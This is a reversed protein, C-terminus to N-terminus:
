ENLVDRTIKLTLERGPQAKFNPIPIQPPAEFVPQQGSGRAPMVPLTLKSAHTRDLYVRNVAPDPLPWLIPWHSSAVSVRIRHGKKFVWSMASLEINLRYIRGPELPEPHEHSNRHSANLVGYTILNSEGLANVETLKVVFATNEATSAACLQVQPFGLIELEEELPESTYTLSYAEDLSQELGLSSAQSMWLNGRVGVDPRYAYQDCVEEAASPATRELRGNPHFYYTNEERGKVPWGAEYRWYGEAYDAFLGPPRNRQVYIALAPEDMIGNDIGKLWYDWWRLLEHLYDIQPGPHARDPLGHVWPGMLAKRPVELHELMRPVANRFHDGWGGIM